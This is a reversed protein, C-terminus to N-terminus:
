LGDAALLQFQLLASPLASFVFTFKSIQALQRIHVCSLRANVLDALFASGDL